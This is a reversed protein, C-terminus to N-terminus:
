YSISIKETVGHTRWWTIQRKIYAHARSNYATIADNKTMSNEYIFMAYRYDLGIIKLWSPDVGSKIIGDIEKLLKPLIRIFRLDSKEFLLKEDATLEIIKWDLKPKNYQDSAPAFHRELLRVLRVKNNLESNNLKPYYKLARKRLESLDLKSFEERLRPAIGPFNYNEVISSVFLGTGGILIPLKKLNICLEILEYAAKQWKAANYFEGLQEIDVLVQHIGKYVRSPRGQWTSKHGVKNTGVDLGVYVQRSDASILVGDFEKAVQIAYETKGVGTPGM